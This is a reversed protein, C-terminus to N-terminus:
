PRQEIVDTLTEATLLRESWKLLTDADAERIQRIVAESAAGFKLEILRLLLTSEGQPNCTLLFTAPQPNCTALLRLNFCLNKTSPQIATFCLNFRLNPNAVFTAPQPNCTPSVPQLNRTALFPL